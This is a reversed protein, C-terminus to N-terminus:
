RDRIARKKLLLTAVLLAVIGCSIIFIMQFTSSVIGGNLTVTIGMEEKYQAVVQEAGDFTQDIIAETIVNRMMATGHLVPFCKLINQVTEPLAGMPLYIGGVFGVLTGIITGLGSWASESHILSALLIMASASVFVNIIIMGVIKATAIFGLLKGGMSVIYLEGIAFTLVCIIIGIFIASIMYGLLIKIRDIPAVYFSSLRGQQEDQVMIGIVTLTVTVANVVIIGAITWMLVLLEANTKDVAADRVGGYEELVQVISNVNMTGLFVVMLGIVILMSLLSFLVATKDRFYVLTNRKVLNFITKM